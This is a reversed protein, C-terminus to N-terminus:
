LSPTPKVPQRDALAAPFRQSAPMVAAKASVSTATAVPTAASATSFLLKLATTLEKFFIYLFFLRKVHASARCATFSSPM